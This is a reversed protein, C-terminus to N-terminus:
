FIKMKYFIHYCTVLQIIGNYDDMWESNYIGIEKLDPLINFAILDINEKSITGYFTIIHTKEEFVHRFSISKYNNFQELLKEININNDLEFKLYFDGKEKKDGINELPNKLAYSIILDAYKQQAAIYKESDKARTKIQNLVKEKTYGRTEMDRIVKWHIRLDEQPKLFVKLDYLQKQQNLYFPHLGEFIMLKNAKIKSPLSFKGDDHQYHKRDVYEGKKLYLAHLMDEHLHNAKPNLHTFKDWNEDGREWKHMDDGRIVRTNRAQFVKTIINTFTTKGAGSDGGVGILYPQYQIKNKTAGVIGRQYIWVCTILLSTQLLTFAINVVKNANFGWEILYLYFNPRESFEPSLLQFVEFIDSQPMVFFYLVYFVNLALFAAGLVNKQQIFLYIIFPMSWYYWGQMPPIFITLIGFSFGLFMVIIDRNYTRFDNLKILFVLYIAPIVYFLLEDPFPYPIQNMFPFHADFIKSQTANRFVMKYFAEDFIFPLNILAFIGVLIFFSYIFTKWGILNSKIAYIGLFPLVLVMNTKCSIAMAIFAVSWIFKDKFLFYLGVFLFSIPIVDLQGHIYSIYILIPSLWYFLIVRKSHNKLWRLLVIFIVADALLIPLRFIFVNFFTIHEYNGDFLFAFIIRPFAMLYLMLSPYPFAEALDKELFYHYPNEFGSSVFYNIFPAFLDTLYQSAFLFSLILKFILGALFLPSKIEPIKFNGLKDYFIQKM